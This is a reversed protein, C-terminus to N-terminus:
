LFSHPPSVSLATTWVDITTDSGGRHWFDPVGDANSDLELTPNPWINGPLVGASLGQVRALVLVATLLAVAARARRGLRELRGTLKRTTVERCAIQLLSLAIM